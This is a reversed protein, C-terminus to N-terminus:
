KLFLADGEDATSSKDMERKQKRTSLSSATSM